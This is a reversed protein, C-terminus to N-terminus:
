RKNKQQQQAQQKSSEKANGIGGSKKYGIWVLLALVAGLILFKAVDQLQGWNRLNVMGKGM